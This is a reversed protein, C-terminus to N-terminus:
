LNYWMGRRKDIGKVFNKSTKQLIIFNLWFVDAGKNQM